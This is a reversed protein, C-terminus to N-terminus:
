TDIRKPWSRSRSWDWFRGGLRKWLGCGSRERL